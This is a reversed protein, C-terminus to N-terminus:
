SDVQDLVLRNQLATLKLGQLEEKIGEMVKTTNMFSISEFRSIEVEIQVLIVGLSMIVAHFFKEVGNWLRHERPVYNDRAWSPQEGRDKLPSVKKEIERKVRTLCPTEPVKVVLM